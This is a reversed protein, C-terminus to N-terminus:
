KMYLSRYGDDLLKYDLWVIVLGYNSSMQNHVRGFDCLDPNSDRLDPRFKAQRERLWRLLTLFVALVVCYMVKLMICITTTTTTSTALSAYFPLFIVLRSAGPVTIPHFLFNGLSYAVLTNNQFCHPQLVHPHAGIIIQVGLSILHKVIRRQYPHPEIQLEDGFHILM